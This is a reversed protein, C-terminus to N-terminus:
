CYDRFGCFGRWIGSSVKGDVGIPVIRSLVVAMSISTLIELALM